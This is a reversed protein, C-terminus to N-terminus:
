SNMLEVMQSAYVKIWRIGYPHECRLSAYLIARKVTLPDFDKLLGKLHRTHMYQNPQTSLITKGYAKYQCVMVYKFLEGPSDGVPPNFSYALPDTIQLPRASSIHPDVRGISKKKM